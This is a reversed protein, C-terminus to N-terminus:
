FVSTLEIKGLYRSCVFVSVQRQSKKHSDGMEGGEGSGEKGMEGGECEEMYRRGMHGLGEGGEEEEWLEVDSPSVLSEMSVSSSMKSKPGSCQFHFLLTNEQSEYMNYVKSYAEIGYM